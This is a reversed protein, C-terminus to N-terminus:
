RLFARTCGSTAPTPTSAPVLSASATYNREFPWLDEFAKKIGNLFVSFKDRSDEGVGFCDVVLIQM